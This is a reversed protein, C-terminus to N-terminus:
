IPQTAEAPVRGPFHCRVIGGDDTDVLPPTTACVDEVV